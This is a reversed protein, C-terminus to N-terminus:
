SAAIYFEGGSVLIQGYSVTSKDSLIMESKKFVEKLEININGAVASGDSKKFANAPISIKTGKNGTVTGGSSSNVTFYQSRVENQKFFESINKPGTEPQVKEKEKKKCAFLVM